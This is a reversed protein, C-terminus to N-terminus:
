INYLCYLAKEKKKKKGQVAKHIHSSLLVPPDKVLPRCFFFFFLFSETEKGSHFVITSYDYINGPM